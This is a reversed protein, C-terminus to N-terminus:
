EGHNMESREGQEMVSYVHKTVDANPHGLIELDWLERNLKYGQERKEAELRDLRATAMDRTAYEALATDKWVGCQSTLTVIFKSM